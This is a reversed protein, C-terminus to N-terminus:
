IIVFIHSAHIFKAIVTIFLVYIRVGWSCSCARASRHLGAGSMKVTMWVSKLWESPFCDASHSVFLRLVVRHWKNTEFQYSIIFWARKANWIGEKSDGHHIFCLVTALLYLRVM